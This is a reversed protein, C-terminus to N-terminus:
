TGSFVTVNTVILDNDRPLTGSADLQVQRPDYIKRGASFISDHDTFARLYECVKCPYMCTGQFIAPVTNVKVLCSSSFPFFSFSFSFIFSFSFSFHFSIGLYLSPRKPKTTTTTTSSGYSSLYRIITPFIKLREYKILRCSDVECRKKEYAM